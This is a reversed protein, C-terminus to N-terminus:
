DLTITYMFTAQPGTCQQAGDTTTKCDALITDASFEDGDLVEFSLETDAGITIPSPTYMWTPELTDDIQSSTAVLVHDVFVKIYPDPPTGDSDWPSGDAKTASISAGVATITWAHGLDADAACGVMCVLVLVRVM